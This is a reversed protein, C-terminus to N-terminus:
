RCRTWAVSKVGAERRSERTGVLTLFDDSENEESVRAIEIVWTDLRDAM